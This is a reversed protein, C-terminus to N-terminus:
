GETAPAETPEAAAPTEVPAPEAKKEEVPAAKKAEAPAKAEEVKKQEVPATKKAEAPAKAEEVPAEARASETTGQTEPAPGNLNNTAPCPDTSTACDSVNPPAPTTLILGTHNANEWFRITGAMSDASFWGLDVCHSEGPGLAPYSVTIPFSNDGCPTLAKKSNNDISKVIFSVAPLTGTACTNKRCLSLFYTKSGKVNVKCTNGALTYEECVGSKAYAPAAAVVAAAPVTWAAGKALTRRSVGFKSTDETM